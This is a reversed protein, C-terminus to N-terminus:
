TTFCCGKHRGSGARRIIPRPRTPLRDCPRGARARRRVCPRSARAVPSGRATVHRGERPPRRRRCRSPGTSAATRTCIGCSGDYLITARIPMLRTRALAARAVRGIALWNLRFACCLIFQRFNIGLLVDNEVQMAFLTPIFIAMAARSFLAPPAATEVVLTFAALAMCLWRHEAIWVGWGVHAGDPDHRLVPIFKCQPLSPVRAPDFYM